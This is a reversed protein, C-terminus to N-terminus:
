VFNMKNYFSYLTDLNNNKLQLASVVVVLKQKQVVGRPNAVCLQLTTQVLLSQSGTKPVDSIYIKFLYPALIFGQPVKNKFTRPHSAKGDNTYLTFHRNSVTEMIFSLMKRDQNSQKLKLRLGRHWVTDNAPTLDIFAAASKQRHIFADEIITLQTVQDVTSRSWSVM